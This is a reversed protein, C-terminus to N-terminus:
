KEYYGPGPQEALKNKINQCNPVKSLFVASNIQANFNKKDNVGIIEYHGPAPNEKAPLNNERTKDPEFVKRPIKSTIFDATRQRKKVHNEKLNYCAPGVTDQGLGSYANQPIKRTPISPARPQPRVVLDGHQFKDYNEEIKTIPDHQDWRRQKEYTGPGIRTLYFKFNVQIIFLLHSNSYALDLLLQVSGQQRNKFLKLASKM